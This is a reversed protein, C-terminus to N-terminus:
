QSSEGPGRCFLCVSLCVAHVWSPIFGWSFIFVCEFSGMFYWPDAPLGSSESSCSNM